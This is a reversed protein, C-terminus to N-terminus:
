PSPATHMPPGAGARGGAKAQKALRFLERRKALLERPPTPEDSLWEALRDKLEPTNQFLFTALRPEANEAPPLVELLQVGSAALFSSIDIDVCPFTDSPRNHEQDNM